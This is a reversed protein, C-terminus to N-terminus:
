SLHIVCESIMKVKKAPPPEGEDMEMRNTNKKDTEKQILPLGGHWTRKETKKNCKLEDIYKV